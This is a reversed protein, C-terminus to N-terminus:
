LVGWFGKKNMFERAIPLEPFTLSEINVFRSYTEPM